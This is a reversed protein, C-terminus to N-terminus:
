ASRSDVAVISIRACCVRAVRDGSAYVRRGVADRAVIAIGAGDAIGARLLGAFGAFQRAVVVIRARLVAAVTDTGADKLRADREPTVVAVGACAVVDAVGRARAKAADQRTVVFLSTCRIRTVVHGAALVRVGISGAAVVIGAGFTVEALM